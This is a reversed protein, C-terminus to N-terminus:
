IQSFSISIGAISCFSEIHSCYIHTHTCCRELSLKTHTCVSKVLFIHDCRYKYVGWKLKYRIYEVKLGKFWLLLIQFELKFEQVSMSLSWDFTQHIHKTYVSYICTAYCRGTSRNCLPIKRDIHKKM